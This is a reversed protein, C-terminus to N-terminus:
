GERGAAELAKFIPQRFKMRELCDKLTQDKDTGYNEILNIMFWYDNKCTKLAEVLQSFLPDVEFANYMIWGKVKEGNVVANTDSHYATFPPTHKPKNTSM